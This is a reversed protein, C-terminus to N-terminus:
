LAQCVTPADQFVREHTHSTIPPQHPQNFLIHVMRQNGWPATPATRQAAPLSAHHQFNCVKHSIHCFYLYNNLFSNLNEVLVANIKRQRAIERNKRVGNKQFAAQNLKPTAPTRVEPAPTSIHFINLFRGRPKRRNALSTGRPRGKAEISEAITSILESTTSILESTTSILESSTRILESSTEVIESSSIILANM